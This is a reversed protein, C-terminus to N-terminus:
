RLSLAEDLLAYRVFPQRDLRGPGTTTVQQTVVMILGVIVSVTIIAMLLPAIGRTRM